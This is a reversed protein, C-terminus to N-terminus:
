RISNRRKPTKLTLGRLVPMPRLGRVPWCTLMGGPLATRNLGPLSSWASGAVAAAGVAFDQFFDQFNSVGAFPCSAGLADGERLRADLSEHAVAQICAVAVTNKRRFNDFRLKRAQDLRKRRGARPAAWEPGRQNQEQKGHNRREGDAGFKRLRIGRIALRKGPILIQQGRHDRRVLM